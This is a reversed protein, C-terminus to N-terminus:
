LGFGSRWDTAVIRAAQVAAFPPKPYPGARALAEPMYGVEVALRRGRSSPLVPRLQRQQGFQQAVLRTAALLHVHEAQQQPSRSRAPPCSTFTNEAGSTRITRSSVDCSTAAGAVRMALMSTDNSMSGHYSSRASATNHLHELSPCLPVNCPCQCHTSQRRAAKTRNQTAPRSSLQDTSAKPALHIMLPHRGTRHPHSAQM